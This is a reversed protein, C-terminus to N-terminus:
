SFAKFRACLADSAESTMPAPRTSAPSCIRLPCLSADINLNTLYRDFVQAFASLLPVPSGMKPPPELWTGQGDRTFQDIRGPNPANGLVQWLPRVSYRAITLYMQILRAIHLSIPLDPTLTRPLCM